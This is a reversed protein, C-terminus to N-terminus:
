RESAQLVYNMLQNTRAVDQGTKGDLYSLGASVRALDYRRQAENREAFDSLSANLLMAQRAESEHILYEVRRLLAESPETAEALSPGQTRAELRALRAEMEAISPSSPGSRSPVAAAGPGFRVVLQAGDWRVESGTVALAGLTVLGLGAAAALGRLAPRFWRRAVLWTGDPLRWAHLDRRVSRFAEIEERCSGCDLIHEEFRAVTASDAEDYLVDILDDQYKGCEM